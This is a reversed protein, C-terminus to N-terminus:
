RGSAAQKGGPGALRAMWWRAATAAERDLRTAPSAAKERQRLTREALGLDGLLLVAGLAGNRVDANGHSLLPRVLAIEALWPGLLRAGAIFLTRGPAGTSEVLYELADVRDLRYKPTRGQGVASRRGRPDRVKRVTIANAALVGDSLTGRKFAPTLAAFQGIPMTPRPVDCVADLAVRSQRLLARARSEAAALEPWGVGAREVAHHLARRREELGSSVASALPLMASVAGRMAALERVALVERAAALIALHPDDAGRLARIAIREQELRRFAARNCRAQMDRWPVWAARVAPPLSMSAYSTDEQGLPHLAVLQPARARRGNTYQVRCASRLAEGLDRERRQLIEALRVLHEDAEDPSTTCRAVSIQETIRRLSVPRGHPWQADRVRQEVLEVLRAALEAASRAGEQALRRSRVLRSGLQEAWADVRDRWVNRLVGVAGWLATRGRGRDHDVLLPFDDALRQLLSATQQRTELTLALEAHLVDTVLQTPVYPTAALGSAVYLAVLVRGADDLFAPDDGDVLQHALRYRPSGGRRCLPVIEDAEAAFWVGPPVPVLLSPQLTRLTRRLTVGTPLTRGEGLIALERRLEPFGFWPRGRGAREVATAIRTDWRSRM